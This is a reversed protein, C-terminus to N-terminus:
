SPSGRRRAGWVVGLRHGAAAAAVCAVITLAAYVIAIALDGSDIRAVVEGAFASYTTLGGCFGVGALLRIRQRVGTDPGAAALGAMLAGLILSGVINVAWTAWPWGPVRTAAWEEAGFRALTGFAGGAFVLLLSLPQLHVPPADPDRMDSAAM